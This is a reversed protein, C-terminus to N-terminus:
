EERRIPLRTARDQSADALSTDTLGVATRLDAGQLRTGWLRAGACDADSLDAGSLDAHDLNANRLVAGALQARSLRGSWFSARELCAGALSAGSLDAHDLDAGSLDCGDLRARRLDARWFSRGSLDADRLDAPAGLTGGSELWERHSALAADLAQATWCKRGAAAPRDVAPRDAHDPMVNGKVPPPTDLPLVAM